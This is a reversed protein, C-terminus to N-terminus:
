DPLKTITNSVLNAPLSFVEDSDFAEDSWLGPRNADAQSRREEWTLKPSSAVSPTPSSAVGPDPHDGESNSSSAVGPNSSSSPESQPIDQTDHCAQVKKLDKRVKELNIGM